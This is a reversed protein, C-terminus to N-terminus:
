FRSIHWQKCRVFFSFHAFDYLPIVKTRDVKSSIFLFFINGRVIGPRSVGRLEGLCNANISFLMRGFCRRQCRFASSRTSIRWFGFSNLSMAPAVFIHPRPTDLARLHNEVTWFVLPPSPFLVLRYPPSPWWNRRYGATTASSNARRRAPSSASAASTAWSGTRAHRAIWRTMARSQWRYPPPSRNVRPVIRDTTVHWQAAAMQEFERISQSRDRYISAAAAPVKTEKRLLDPPFIVTKNNSENLCLRNKYKLLYATNTTSNLITKFVSTM